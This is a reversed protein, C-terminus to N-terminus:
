AGLGLEKRFDENSRPKREGADELRRQQADNKGETAQGDEGLKHRRRSTDEEPRNQRESGSQQVEQDRKNSGPASTHEQSQVQPQQASSISANSPAAFIEKGKLKTGNLAEVARQVEEESSLQVYAFGRHNKSDDAKKPM